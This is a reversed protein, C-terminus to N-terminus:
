SQRGLLFRRYDSVRCEMQRIVEDFTLVKIDKIHTKVLWRWQENPIEPKAGIVLNLSPVCYEIGDEALKKKVTDQSLIKEYRKIQQAAKFVEHAIVPGDRYTCTLKIARKVEYLEWDNTVSNRLFVDLRRNKDAIDYQLFRLWLQPEIRDYSPGFIDKYNSTIFRELKSEKANTQILHEFEHIAAEKEKLIFIPQYPMKSTQSVGGNLSKEGIFREVRQRETGLSISLGDGSELLLSTLAKESGVPNGSVFSDCDGMGYIHPRLKIKNLIGKYVPLLTKQCTKETLGTFNSLFYLEHLKRGRRLAPSVMGWQGIQGSYTHQIKNLRAAINPDAALVTKPNNFIEIPLSHLLYVAHISGGYSDLLERCYVGEGINPLAYFREGTQSYQGFLKEVFMRFGERSLHGILSKLLSEEM